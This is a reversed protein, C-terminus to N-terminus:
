LLSLRALYTGEDGEAVNTCEFGFAEAVGSLTKFDVFLWKFPFSFMNKYIMQYEVEGYYHEPMDDSRDYMYKIDSSDLLIQGGPNLLEQCKILFSTLGDLTGALGAGNMLFLLTDFKNGVKLDYFDICAANNLGRKKMTKVSLESIDICNTHIGRTRLALSHSGAGAGIDLVHGGCLEIAKQELLPMAKFDRFLYSVPIEDTESIDSIVILKDAKGTSYYDAIAHGMPDNKQNM